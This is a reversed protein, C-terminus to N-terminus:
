RRGVSLYEFGADRMDKPSFINRGDFFVNGRMLNKVEDIDVGTFESWETIVVVADADRVADKASDAYVLDPYKEKVNEDAVPDYGIIEAGEAILDDIVVLSVAERIDDTEPKFALGWLAIKKGQVGGMVDKLKEVVSKKQMMNVEESARLLSFDVNNNSAIKILAQVDKPFCSGGYGLGASLFAHKGIRKDLKMGRTVETVDAGAEECIQAVTNIFSISMALFSNSAYKILEASKVDTFVIPGDLKEYLKVIIERAEENGHDIGVVVRDPNFCDNVAQGERLFEPNSVVDFNGDYTKSIIDKVINGTGVPVTSKNVVIRFKERNEDDFESFVGAIDEAVAKVYQLDASGDEDQPTGVAIFFAKSEEAFDAIKTSFRLRGAEHNRVVIEKLGPEYIPMIGKKLDEVKREDIDICMVTHGLEAFTTGTVLGVYGTGVVTINM